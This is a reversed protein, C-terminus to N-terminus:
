ESYLRNKIMKVNEFYTRAKIELRDAWYDDIVGDIGEDRAFVFQVKRPNQKDLAVLKFGASILAASIGLDFSYYFKNYDDLPIVTLEKLTKEEKKKNM